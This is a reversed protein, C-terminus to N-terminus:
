NLLRLSLYVACIIQLQGNFYANYLRMHLHQNHAPFKTSFHHFVFATCISQKDSSLLYVCVIMSNAICNKWIRSFSLSVLLAETQIFSVIMMHSNNPTLAFFSNHVITSFHEDTHFFLTPRFIFLEILHMWHKQEPWNSEICM